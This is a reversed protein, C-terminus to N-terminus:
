QFSLLTKTEEDVTWFITYYFDFLLKKSYIYCVMKSNIKWINSYYHYKNSFINRVSLITKSYNHNKKLM